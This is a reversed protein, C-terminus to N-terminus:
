ACSGVVDGEGAVFEGDDEEGEVDYLLGIDIGQVRRLDSACDPQEGLLEPGLEAVQETVVLLLRSATTSTALM